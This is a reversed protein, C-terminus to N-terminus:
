DRPTLSFRVTTAGGTPADVAISLEEDARVFRAGDPGTARPRWGLQPLTRGYFGLVASPDVPGAAALEVIRGNPKDFVMAHETQETLGPMLPLDSVTEAFGDAAATRCLALTLLGAALAFRTMAATM